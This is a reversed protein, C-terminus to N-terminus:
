PTDVTNAPKAAHAANTTSATDETHDSAMPKERGIATETSAPNAPLGELLGGLESIIRDPVDRHPSHGCDPIICLQTQPAHRQIGRIQELTGYEDDVGQIALVPCRIDKLLSEISWDQFEPTLWTDNWSWFVSDPDRHHRGLRAPLDTTLYAHRATRIGQLTVEDVFYHPAAVAIAQVRDPYSAAYILSISGGDSHGFLVPKENDLGLATLLAPLDHWAEVHLYDLSRPEDPLRPTSQGYGYRSYVLGRCGLRQCAKAPWDRWMSISGLGEHLFIVLPADTNDANFLQYELEIDRDGRRIQILSTM